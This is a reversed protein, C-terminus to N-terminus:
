VPLTNALILSLAGFINWIVHGVISAQVSDSVARLAGLFLSLLLIMVISGATLFGTPIHVLSFLLSTLLFPVLHRRWFPQDPEGAPLLANYLAGRFIFEEAFPVVTTVVLSSAIQLTPSSFLLLQPEVEAPGILLSIPVVVMFVFPLTILPVMWLRIRRPKRWALWDAMEFPSGPVLWRWARAWVVALTVTALAALASAILALGIGNESILFDVVQQQTRLNGNVILVALVPLPILLQLLVYTGLLLGALAWLALRPPAAPVDVPLSVGDRAAVSFQEEM